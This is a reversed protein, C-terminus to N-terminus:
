KAKKNKDKLAAIENKLTDNETQLKAFDEKLAENEAKLASYQEYSVTKGRGAVILNGKEDVIDYGQKVLADKEAENNIPIERNGKVAYQQM